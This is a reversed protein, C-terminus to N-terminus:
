LSVFAVISLEIEVAKSGQLEAATNMFVIHSNVSFYITSIM